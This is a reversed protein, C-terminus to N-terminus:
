VRVFSQNRPKPWPRKKWICLLFWKLCWFPLDQLSSIWIWKFKSKIYIKLNSNHSITHKYTQPNITTVGRSFQCSPALCIQSAESAVKCGRVWVRFGGRTCLDIFTVYPRNQGYYYVKQKAWSFHENFRCSRQVHLQALQSDFITGKKISIM